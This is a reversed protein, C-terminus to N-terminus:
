LSVSHNVEFSMTTSPQMVLKRRGISGEVSSKTFLIKSRCFLSKLTDLALKCMHRATSLQRERFLRHFHSNCLFLELYGALCVERDRGERSDTFNIINRGELQRYVVQSLRIPCKCISCHSHFVFVPAKRRPRSRRPRPGRPHQVYVYGSKRPERFADHAENPVM